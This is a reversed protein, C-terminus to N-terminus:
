EFVIEEQLDLNDYKGSKLYRYMFLSNTLQINNELTAMYLESNIVSINELEWLSSFKIKSNELNFNNGSIYSKEIFNKKIVGDCHIYSKDILDNNTIMLWETGVFNSIASQYITSNIIIVYRGIKSDIVTSKEDVYGGRVGNPYIMRYVKIKEEGIIKFDKLDLEYNKM